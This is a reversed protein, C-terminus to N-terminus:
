TQVHHESIVSREGYSMTEDGGARGGNKDSYDYSGYLYDAEGQVALLRADYVPLHVTHQINSGATHAGCVSSSFLTNEKELDSRVM